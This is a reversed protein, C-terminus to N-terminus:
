CFTMFDIGSLKGFFLAGGNVILYSTQLTGSSIHFLNDISFETCRTDLGVETGLGHVTM